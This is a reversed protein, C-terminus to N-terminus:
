GMGNNVSAGIVGATATGHGTDDNFPEITTHIGTYNGFLRAEYFGASARTNFRAGFDKHTTQIGSDIIGVTINPSGMTLSWAQPLGIHNANWQRSFYPDNVIVSESFDCHMSSDLEASFIYRNGVLNNEMSMRTETFASEQHLESVVLLLIRRFYNLDVKWSPNYSRTWIQRRALELSPTIEEVYVVGYGIFDRVTFTRFICVDGNLVVVISSVESPTSIHYEESLYAVAMDANLGRTVHEPFGEAGGDEQYRICAVYIVWGVFALVLGIALGILFKKM